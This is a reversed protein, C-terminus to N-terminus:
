QGHQGVLLGYVTRDLDLRDVLEKVQSSVLDTKLRVIRDLQGDQEFKSRKTLFIMKEENVKRVLEESDTEGMYEITFGLRQLKWGLLELGTDVIFCTRRLPIQRVRSLPTIDMSEFIPYLAIRDGGSIKRSTEVSNQNVLVLDIEQRPIALDNIIDDITTGQPYYLSFARKKVGEPLYENLEEYCRITVELM